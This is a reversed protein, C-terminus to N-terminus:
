EVTITRRRQAKLEQAWVIDLSNTSVVTGTAVWYKPNRAEFLSMEEVHGDFFGANGRLLAENESENDGSSKTGHRFSNAGMRRGSANKGSVFARTNYSDWPGPDAFSGGVPANSSVDHDLYTLDGRQYRTGDAVFVKTSPSGMRSISPRYGRGGPVAPNWSGPQEMVAHETGWFGDTAWEPRTTSNRGGQKGWWLLDRSSVYSPSLQVPSDGVGNPYATNNLFPASTVTNSPCACVGNIGTSRSIPDQYGKTGTALLLREARKIPAVQADGMYEWILPSAWDWPQTALGNVEEADGALARQDNLLQRSTTGPSGALLGNNESIFAAQAQSISRLNAKCVLNYGAERAGQLAPLLLGMLLAIISIVVLLEVLTFGRRPHNCASM